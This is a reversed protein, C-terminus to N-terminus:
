DFVYASGSANGNDDDGNAAVALSDGSISISIGFQDIAAGDDATLKSQQSWVGNNRTFLYASGSSEGNDDDGYAGVGLNDGSLSVSYGFQDGEAGDAATVKGQQSWVGNSRIFLYASGSASGNDDDGYAGIALSDGSLSVSRGFYDSAASDIATLKAQESWVGNSRTFVYTSGSGAGNDEYYAGVALSEGWLSVSTGFRGSAGGDTATLKTQQSWVGNSRTFLYTSGSEDEDGSAGVALGDDSLSVSYGFYNDAAGDAATLKAQQSWVGNSRTFLYASGSSNGDDDDGYAGVALGDGLLSVSFGFHDNAAGDLATLKAQQRWLGNNRTFIYASGSASGNDDDGSAGVVLSDGSLSISYGILDGVEGDAALLKKVSNQMDNRTITLDYSRTTSGDEATVIIEVPNDGESLNIWDSASGTETVQGAITISSAAEDESFTTIKLRTTLYNVTTTYNLQSSQFPQDLQGASLRIGDLRANDSLPNQAECIFETSSVEASELFGSHDSDIGVDFRVGGFACNDGASEAMQNVLASLGDRGDAGNCVKEVNDVETDELSGNDNEDIGTEVLIGGNPCDIDNATLLLSRSASASASENESPKSNGGCATLVVVTTLGCVLPRLPLFM